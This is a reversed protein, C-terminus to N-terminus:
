KGGAMVHSAIFHDVDKSLSAEAKVSEYASQTVVFDVDPMAKIKPTGKSNAILVVYGVKRQNIPFAVVTVDTNLANKFVMYPKDNSAERYEFEYSQLISYESKNISDNNMEKADCGFVLLVLVILLNKIM